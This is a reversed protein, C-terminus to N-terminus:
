KKAYIIELRLKKNPDAASNGYFMLRFPDYARSTVNYGIFAASSNQLFSGIGVVIDDNPENKEVINKVHQTLNLTYYGPNNTFNYAPSLAYGSLSSYSTLDTLFSKQTDNYAYIYTPKQTNADAYSPTLHFKIRAGIVAWGNNVSNKISALQGDNLKLKISPGGMGQLYLASEGNTTNPNQMQSLFQPSAGNRDYFNYEGVVSNYSSNTTFVYSSSNYTDADDTAKYRYYATLTMTSKPFSFMFRADDEAVSIRLGKFYQIFNANDTMEPSTMKNFFNEKFYASNLKIRYGPTTADSISTGSGTKLSVSVISDNIKQEGLLDGVDITKNSYFPSNISELFTNIRNVRLTMSIGKQGLFSSLPYKTTYQITDTSLESEPHYRKETIKYNVADYSPFIALVVSDIIQGTGLFSGSGLRIQTNFAAKSKGFENDQYVGVLGNLLASQDARISDNNYINYAVVDVFASDGSSKGSILDAGLTSNDNECSALLSVSALFGATLINFFFKKNM